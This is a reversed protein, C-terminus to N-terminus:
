LWIRAEDTGADADVIELLVDALRAALDRVEAASLPRVIHLVAAAPPPLPPKAV